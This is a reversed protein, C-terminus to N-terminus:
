TLRCGGANGRQQRYLEREAETRLRTTLIFAGDSGSIGESFASSGSSSTRIARVVQIEYAEVLEAVVGANVLM